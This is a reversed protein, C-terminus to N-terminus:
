RLPLRMVVEQDGPEGIVEGTEAFGLGAYFDRPGGEGPVYSRRLGVAGPRARLEALLLRMARRGYGRRQHRRDILFRWLDYEGPAATGFLPADRVMLFGVPEDGASIARFWLARDSSAQAIPVAPTEVFAWQEPALELACVAGLVEATVPRLTVEAAHPARGRAPADLRDRGAPAGPGAAASDARDMPAGGAGLAEGSGTAGAM